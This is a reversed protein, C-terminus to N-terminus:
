SGFLSPAEGGAAKRAEIREARSSVKEVTGFKKATDSKAASKGAPVGKAAEKAAREEAIAAARAASEAKQKAIAAETKAKREADQKVKAQYEASAKAEAEEQRVRIEAKRAEIKADQEMQVAAIKDLQAGCPSIRLYLLMTTVLQCSLRSAIPWLPSSTPQFILKTRIVLM